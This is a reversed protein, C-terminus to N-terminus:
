VRANGGNMKIIRDRWYDRARSWKAYYVPDQRGKVVNGIGENYAEVWETETPLRGLHGELYERIFQIYKIGLTINVSAVYLGEPDGTYGEQRATPLLLQMLGYSATGTHVIGADDRWHTTPEPRYARTDFESEVTIFALIEWLELWDPKLDRVIGLVDLARNAPTNQLPNTLPTLTSLSRTDSVLNWWQQFQLKRRNKPKRLCLYRPLSLAQCLEGSNEAYIM